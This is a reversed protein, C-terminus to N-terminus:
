KIEVVTTIGLKVYLILKITITKCYANFGIKVRKFNRLGRAQLISAIM